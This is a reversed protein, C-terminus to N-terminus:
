RHPSAAGAAAEKKLRSGDRGLGLAHAATAVIAMVDRAGVQGLSPLKLSLDDLDVGLTMGLVHLEFGEARALGVGLVGKLSVQWGTNSPMPMLSVWAKAYDKGLATAPLNASFEPVQRSVWAVFTNSNPGPWVGYDGRARHPYNGVARRIRPILKEAAAGRLDSVIWPDRGYWRGDAPFNDVRVPAGWGVVEFRTFRAANAPKVLIWSHTAFIGKWRGARAAYVQVVARREIRPDPAIGTASWDADRWNAPWGKISFWLAGFAVPLVFGWIALYKFFGRM